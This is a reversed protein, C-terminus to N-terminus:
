PGKGEGAPPQAKFQRLTAAFPAHEFISRIGWAVGAAAVINLMAAVGLVAPWSLGQGLLWVAFAVVGALWATVVLVTIVIGAGVLWALQIAARRMDLVALLAYDSAMRKLAGLARELPELISADANPELDPDPPRTGGGLPPLGPPRRAPGRDAATDM